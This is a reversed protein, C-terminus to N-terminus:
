PDIFPLCSNLRYQVRSLTVALDVNMGDVVPGIRVVQGQIANENSVIRCLLAHSDLDQLISGYRSALNIQLIWYLNIIIVIYLWLSDNSIFDAKVLRQRM